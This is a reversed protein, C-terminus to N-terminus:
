YTFNGIKDGIVYISPNCVNKITDHILVLDYRFGRFRNPNSDNITFIIFSGNKFGIRATYIASIISEYRHDEKIKKLVSDRINCINPASSIILVKVKKSLCYDIVSKNM